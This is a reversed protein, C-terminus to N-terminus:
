GSQSEGPAPPSGLDASAEAEPPESGTPAAANPAAREKLWMGVILVAVGVSICSDAVNFVAFSGISIFDTVYGDRIRDVLNGLAGGCQLGMALRLFWESRPVQPFYYVIFGAVLIALVIFVDNLNQFMGFAAGTNRWHVFRAYPLLWDWPAWQDGFSLNARVMAKTWQDLAVIAGAVILLFAYDPLHKKL